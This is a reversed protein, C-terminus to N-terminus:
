GSVEVYWHPCRGSRNDQISQVTGKRGSPLLVEDEPALTWRCGRLAADAAKFDEPTIFTSGAISAHEPTGSFAITTHDPFICFSSTGQHAFGPSELHVGNIEHCSVGSLTVTYSADEMGKRVHHTLRVTQNAGLPTRM